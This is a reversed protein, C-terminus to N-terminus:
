VGNGQEDDVLAALHKQLGWEAFDKKNKYLFIEVSVIKRHYIVKVATM